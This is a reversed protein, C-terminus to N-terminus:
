LSFSNLTISFYPLLVLRTACKLRGAKIAPDTNLLQEVEASTEVDFIFIGQAFTEDGFPGAVKLKGEDYLRRINTMHGEQLRVATLSDQKRNDGKKLLVFWYKKIQNAPKQSNDKQAISCDSGLFLYARCLIEFFFSNTLLIAQQNTSKYSVVNM